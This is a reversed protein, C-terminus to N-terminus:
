FDFDFGMMFSSSLVDEGLGGVGRTRNISYEQHWALGARSFMIPYWRYGFTLADINGQNGPIGANAQQSMRILEVRGVFVLQPTRAYDAEIFGGNWSAARLGTPDTTDPLGNAIFKNDFGHLYVTDLVWKNSMFVGYVGARYFPENGRGAGAILTGGSTQFFTPAQGFYAYAGIRETGHNGVNFAHSFNGYVDVSRGVVNGVSGDNSSVVSLNYRTYSNASHGALEVGIQNDGIGGFLYTNAGESVPSFHYINYSGGQGSLTISRKESVPLDLEYKGFKFNLWRSGLLNDFRVFANEFHFAGTNDSSPLLSFTINKYLTGATWIDIGSLDFGATTVTRSVTGSEPDGAVADVAQHNSSDRHWQPTIRLTMPFYSADRTIPTDRDNGLQYGNDRFVQGFNNLLPWAVHCASCPLGYKRAFAPIARAPEPNPLILALLFLVAPVGAVVRNTWNKFLPSNM